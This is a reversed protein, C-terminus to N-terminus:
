CTLWNQIKGSVKKLCLGDQQVVMSLEGNKQLLLSDTEEQMSLFFINEKITMISVVLIHSFFIKLSHTARLCSTLLDERTNMLSLIQRTGANMAGATQVHSSNNQVQWYM